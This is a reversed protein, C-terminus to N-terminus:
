ELHMGISNTVPYHELVIYSFMQRPLVSEITCSGYWCVIKNGLQLYLLNSNIASLLKQQNNAM